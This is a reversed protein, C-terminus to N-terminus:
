KNALTRRRVSDSIKKIDFTADLGKSDGDINCLHGCHTGQGSSPTHFNKALSIIKFHIRWPGEALHTLNFYNILIARLTFHLKNCRLIM